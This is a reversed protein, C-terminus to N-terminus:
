AFEDEKIQSYVIEKYVECTKMLEKHTGQGVCHGEDLVIINDADM